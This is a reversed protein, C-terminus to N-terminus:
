KTFKSKIWEWRWWVVAGGGIILIILGIFDMSTNEM